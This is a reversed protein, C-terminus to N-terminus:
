IDEVRPCSFAAQEVFSLDGLGRGHLPHHLARYSPDRTSQWPSGDFFGGLQTQLFTLLHQSVPLSCGWTGQGGWPAMNQGQLGATHHHGDQGM